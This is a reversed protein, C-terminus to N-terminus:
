PAFKLTNRHEIQNVNSQLKEIDKDHLFSTSKEHFLRIHKDPMQIDLKGTNLTSVCALIEEQQDHFGLPDDITSINKIDNPNVKLRCMGCYGNRCHSNPKLGQAELAELVTENTKQIYNSM